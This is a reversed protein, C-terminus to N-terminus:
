ITCHLVHLCVWCCDQLTHQFSQVNNERTPQRQISLDCLFESVCGLHAAHPIVASSPSNGDVMASLDPYVFRKGFTINSCQCYGLRTCGQEELCAIHQQLQLVLIHYQEIGWWLFTPYECIETSHDNQKM